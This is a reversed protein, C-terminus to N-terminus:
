IAEELLEALAPDHQIRKALAERALRLRSRVTNEPVGMTQAIEAISLELVIKQALVESQAEPLEELLARLLRRRSAAMIEEDPRHSSHANVTDAAALLDPAARRRRRHAIAIRVAIRCAYHAPSCEGRFSAMGSVFAVLAEQAVDEVDRHDRGLIARVTRFVSPAVGKLLERTSVVVTAAQPAADTAPEARSPSLFTPSTARIM